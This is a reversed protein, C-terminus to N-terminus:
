QSRREDHPPSQRAPPDAPLFPLAVAAPSLAAHLALLIGASGTALDMSLRLLQDGVFGLHNQYPVAHWSLRRLHLKLVPEESEQRAADATHSLYAILGARGNFLGSQAVFESSCARRLRAQAMAFEEDDRHRLYEHLVFGIGASGTALYPLRRQGECVQLRGDDTTQCYALDRRLATAALDLFIADASDQYLHTFLLAAGSFGYMLGAASPRDPVADPHHIARALREAIGTASDRLSPDTSRQAFHLLTLGIGALGGFLGSARVEATLALARDLTTLAEERRGLQDLVYAVGHLGNFLGAHPHRAQQTARVLWDVHESHIGLGTTQLAYLVGAAGYALTFGGYRFQAVDGPFLRDSRQPTASALIAATMSKRLADWEPFGRDLLIGLRSSDHAPRPKSRPQRQVAVKLGRQIQAVFTEPLGFRETLVGVFTDIKTLDRHLVETLPLFMWLRLCALAYHDIDRGSCGAPAIFGPAGLGPRRDQDVPFAEEFDVLAIRGDPRLLINRPHLDGFVIGRRHLEEIARQVQDLVDLAWAAYAVVDSGPPNPRVLPYRAVMCKNLSEGDIYEEVLFHHEWCTFHDILDPAFELGSLQELIIRERGLRAVADTGDRALGGFPRAEKLVVRSRTRTNQALYVGGGNSFHLARDIEYPFDEPTRDTRAAMQAALFDPIEAWAPVNFAPRRVDPVLRGDPAAVARVLDGDASACYREAFGGYRVYVLGSRWRLDSLIYPGQYGDLASALDTLATHLEAEGRPYLTLLKGSSARDAYKSSGVLLIERSRLFKFAVKQQVCYDWVIGLVDEAHPLCASIHIKWGQPPLEVAPPHLMVWVGREFRNWGEPASRRALAFRNHMDDRREVLDYFDPDAFCYHAYALDL